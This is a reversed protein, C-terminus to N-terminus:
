APSPQATKRGLIIVGHHGAHDTSVLRMDQVGGRNLVRVIQSLDYDYMHIHGAPLSKLWLRYRLAQAKAKWGTFVPPELNPERWITFQLSVAGGTALRAMLQELIELGRPPEIHQFVIFSNIWDFPGDPMEGVYTPKGSRKRALALMGPSIDLGTVQAYDAMAEALRGVGCGFDLARGSPAAGTARELNQVIEAIYDRGSAYFTEIGEPTIAESRFDPHSLVGWYPQSQGLERWDADTDRLGLLSDGPM